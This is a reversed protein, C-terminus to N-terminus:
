IVNKVVFPLHIYMYRYHNKINDNIAIHPIMEVNIHGM